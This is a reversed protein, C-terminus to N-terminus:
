DSPCPSPTTPSAPPLGYILFPNTIIIRLNKLLSNETRTFTDCEPKLPASPKDVNGPVPQIIREGAPIPAPPTKAQPIVTNM